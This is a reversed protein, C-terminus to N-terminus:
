RFLIKKIICYNIELYISSCEFNYFQGIFINGLLNRYPRPEMGVDYKRKVMQGFQICYFSFIEQKLSKLRYTIKNQYFKM